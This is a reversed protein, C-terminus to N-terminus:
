PHIPLRVSFRTGEGRESAAAITGNHVEVFRKAIALGLGAGATGERDTSARYFRDFIHPLDARDIGRGTDVVELVALAGDRYLRFRVDGGPPTYKIANDGLNLVVQRLKVADGSLRVDPELSAHVRVNRPEGLATVIDLVDRCLASFDLEFRKAIQLDADALSLSQLDSVVVSMDSVETDLDDLLADRQQPTAARRVFEITSKM